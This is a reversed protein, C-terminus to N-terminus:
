SVGLAISLIAGIISLILGGRALKSANSSLGWASLVLGLFANILSYGTLFAGAISLSGLLVGAVAGGKTRLERQKSDVPEAPTVYVRPPADLFSRDSTQIIEANVVDSQHATIVEADPVVQAEVIDDMLTSDSPEDLVEAALSELDKNSVPDTKSNPTKEPLEKSWQENPYELTCM